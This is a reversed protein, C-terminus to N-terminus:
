WIRGLLSGSHSQPGISDLYVQLAEKASWAEGIKSGSVMVSYPKNKGDKGHPKWYGAVQTPGDYIYGGDSTATDSRKTHYAM